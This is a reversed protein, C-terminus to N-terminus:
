TRLDLRRMTKVLGQRTLGLERAAEARCGAARGLAARVADRECAVRLDALTPRPLQVKRIRAPLLSPSVRGRPPAAVVLAAMVNQLERVNGPWAYATLERLVGDGLTAASGVRAAASRWFIEALAPVDEPRERLPPVRLRVVDLRYLLDARFRGAIVEDTMSRNAAAVIRVDVPRTHAEGLRRVEQQQIVRLLKAQARASLESVEDLFLTGGSAEEFLGPRDGPAGTFAGRAHGFLEAEVLDDPLAACNLDCFRRAERTSLRHIARAVLEKGVGSEGEILVAFPAGAARAISRRLDDLATSPGVIEPLLSPPSPSARPVPAVTPGITAGGTERAIALRLLPPAARATRRLARRAEDVEGDLGARRLLGIWILTARTVELPTRADRAAIRIRDVCSAAAELDGSEGLVRLRAREVIARAHPHSAIVTDLRAASARRGAEFLHHSALLARIAMSEIWAAVVPDAQLEGPLIREAASDADGRCLALRVACANAWARHAPGLGSAAEISRVREGAGDLQAADTLAGVEWLAADVAVDSARVDRAAAVADAFARQADAARGRALLLRGLEILVRACPDRAQRRALAGAVDRLLREAAAHRGARAFAEARRARRVHEAVAPSLTDLQPWAAARLPERDDHRVREAPAVSGSSAVRPALSRCAGISAARAPARLETTNSNVRISLNRLAPSDWPWASTMVMSPM